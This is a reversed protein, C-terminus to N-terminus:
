ELTRCCELATDNVIRSSPSSSLVMCIKVSPLLVSCPTPVPAAMNMVPLCVVLRFYLSSLLHVFLWDSCTSINFDWSYMFFICVVPFFTVTYVSLWVVRSEMLFVLIWVDRISLIRHCVNFISCDAHFTLNQQTLACAPIWPLSSASVSAFSAAVFTLM